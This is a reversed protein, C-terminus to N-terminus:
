SQVKQQPRRGDREPRATCFEEGNKYKGDRVVGEQLKRNQVDEQPRQNDRGPTSHVTNRRKQVQWEVRGSSAAAKPEASVAASTSWRTRHTSLLTSWLKRVQLEM